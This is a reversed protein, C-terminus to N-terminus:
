KRAGSSITSENGETNELGLEIGTAQELNVIALNYDFVTEAFGQKVEQLTRQSELLELSEIEGERYSAEAIQFAEQAEALIVDRYRKVREGLKTLEGFAAQVDTRIRAEAAIMASSLAKQRAQAEAMRGSIAERGFIPVSIGFAIDWNDPEGALHHRSFSVAFDPMLESRALSHQVSAASLSERISRLELRHGLATDILEKESNTKVPWQKLLTTMLPADPNRGLLYNLQMRLQREENEVAALENQATATEVSARLVDLKGVSGADFKEQAMHLLKESISLNERSIILKNQVLSLQQYVSKVTLATEWRILEYDAEAASVEREALKVRLGPRTPFELEQSFGFYIEGSRFIREQQDFDFDFSTAPFEKAQKIRSQVATLEHTSIRLEPNNELALKIAEQQTLIDEASTARGPDAPMLATRLVTLAIIVIIM